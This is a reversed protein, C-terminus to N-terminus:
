SKCLQGKQAAKKNGKAIWEVLRVLFNKKKQTRKQTRKEIM